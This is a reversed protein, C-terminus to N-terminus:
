LYERYVIRYRADQDQQDSVVENTGKHERNGIYEISLPKNRGKNGIRKVFQASDNQSFCLYSFCALLITFLTKM